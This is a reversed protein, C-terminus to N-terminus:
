RNSTWEPDLSTYGPKFDRDRTSTACIINSCFRTEFLARRKLHKRLNFPSTGAKLEVKVVEGPSTPRLGNWVYLYSGGAIIIILSLITTIVWFTIRGKGPGAPRLDDNASFGSEPLHESPSM